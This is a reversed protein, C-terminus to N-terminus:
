SDPYKSKFKELAAQQKETIKLGTSTLKALAARTRKTTGERVRRSLSSAARKSASSVKQKAAGGKSAVQESVYRAIRRGAEDIKGPGEDSADDPSVVVIEETVM